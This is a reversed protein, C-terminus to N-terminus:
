EQPMKDVLGNLIVLCWGVGGERAVHLGVQVGMNAVKHCASRHSDTHTVGNAVELVLDTVVQLEGVFIYTATIGFRIQATM